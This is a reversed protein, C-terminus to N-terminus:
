EVSRSGMIFIRTFKRPDNSFITITKKFKGYSQATGDYTVEITDTEGPEIPCKPHKVTVCGCSTAADNIILTESGVNLVIFRVTRVPKKDNVEGLNCVQEAIALRPTQKEPPAVPVNAMSLLAFTETAFLIQAIIRLM